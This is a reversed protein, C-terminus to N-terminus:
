VCLDSYMVHVGGGGMELVCVCVRARARVCLSVCQTDLSRVRKHKHLDSLHTSCSHVVPREGFRNENLHFNVTHVSWINICERVIQITM